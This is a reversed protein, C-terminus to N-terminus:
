MLPMQPDVYTYEFVINWGSATQKNEHFRFGYFMLIGRHGALTPEYETYATELKMKAAISESWADFDFPGEPVEWSVTHKPWHSAQMDTDKSIWDLHNLDMHYAVARPIGHETMYRQLQDLRM